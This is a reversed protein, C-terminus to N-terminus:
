EATHASLVSAAKRAASACPMRAVMPATVLFNDNGPPGLSTIRRDDEGIEAGTAGVLRQVYVEFEQDAHPPVDNDANWVVLYEDDVPNYVVDPERADYFTSGNPGMSSIRFDDTGIEAATASLRQGFIEFEEDVRGEDMDDGEWVVLYEGATPNYVVASNFADLIHTNIPDVMQSVQVPPGVPVGAARLWGPIPIFRAGFAGRPFLVVFASCASPAVRRGSPM